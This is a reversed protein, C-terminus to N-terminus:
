QQQGHPATSSPQNPTAGFMPICWTFNITTEKYKKGIKEEAAAAGEGGDETILLLLLFPLLTFQTKRRHGM